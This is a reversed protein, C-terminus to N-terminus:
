KKLVEKYIFKSINNYGNGNWRKEDNFEGDFILEGNENYEKGKYKKNDKFEGEFIIRDGFM